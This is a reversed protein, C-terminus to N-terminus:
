RRKKDGRASRSAKRLLMLLIEGGTEKKLVKWWWINGRESDRPRAHSAETDVKALAPDTVSPPVQSIAWLLILGSVFCNADSQVAVVKQADSLVQWLFPHLVASYGNPHTGVSSKKVM